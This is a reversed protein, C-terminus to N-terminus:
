FELPFVDPMECACCVYWQDVDKTISVTKLVGSMDRHKKLRVQKDKGRGLCPLQITKDTIWNERFQPFYISQYEQFYKKKFKPFGHEKPNKQYAQLDLELFRSVQQLSQSPVTIWQYEKKILPLQYNLDYSTSFKQNLDKKPKEQAVFHNWLFREQALWQNLIVEQKPKPYIRYKFTKIM